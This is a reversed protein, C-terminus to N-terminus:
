IEDVRDTYALLQIEESERSEEMSKVPSPLDILDVTPNTQTISALKVADIKMNTMGKAELLKEFKEAKPVLENHKAIFKERAKEIKALEENVEVVEEQPTGAGYGPGFVDLDLEPV